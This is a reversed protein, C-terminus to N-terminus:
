GAHRAARELARIPGTGVAATRTPGDPGSLAGGVREVEVMAVVVAEDAVATVDDCSGM